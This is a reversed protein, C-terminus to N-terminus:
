RPRVAHRQHRLRLAPLEQAAHAAAKAKYADNLPRSLIFPVKAESVHRRPHAPPQGEPRLDHNGASAGICVDHRSIVAVDAKATPRCTSCAAPPPRTWRWSSATSAAIHDIIQRATVRGRSWVRVFGGLSGHHAVFADTIPCIVITEDKGFKADLIDQLWIVNPDGAANSKDSM